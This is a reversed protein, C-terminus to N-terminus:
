DPILRRARALAAAPDCLVEHDGMLVLVAARLERLEDDSLPAAAVRLMEPPMQFHKMGLHMLEVMRQVNPDDLTSGFGAWRMFANVSFRTPFLMMLMGHLIFQRSIPLLGGSSLLVLKQVREPAAAALRLGLWGGHSVGAVSVCDLHLADLTAILWAVYDAANRIPENPISRNPQGMTDIAYIRYDKSFDVIYPTWMILTATYGHLLVLPPAEKPGSIVVHTMGFRSPLDLEEYRVPWLEMASDYASLFAARGEATKFPSPQPLKGFLGALNRHVKHYSQVPPAFMLICEGHVEQIGHSRCFQIATDSEAGQQMWVRKIGAAKVEHVVKETQGPPVVIVVGDVKEPLSELNAYCRDGDLTDMGPNVPFVRYGKTKLERYALNGFKKSDRSVGVVALTKQDVFDYINKGALESM